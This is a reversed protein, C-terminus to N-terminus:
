SLKRFRIAGNVTDVRITPGGGNLRGDLKRRTNEGSKEFALGDVSIGGNVCRAVVTAKAADSLRVEISGNTTELETGAEGVSTLDVKITGNTTSAKVSGGLLRGEVGGNTAEARTGGEVGTVSITGNTTELNVTVAKPVRLTYVVNVGQRGFTKKNRTEIRVRTPSAEDRIEVQKLLEKAAEESGARATLEAKVEVTSGDSAEVQIRGNVNVVVVEVGKSGVSYSKAWSDTAKVSGGWGGGDISQVLVDCGSVAVAAAAFAAAILVRSMGRAHSM